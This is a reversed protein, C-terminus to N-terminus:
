DKAFISPHNESDSTTTFARDESSFNAWIQSIQKWPVGARKGPWNALKTEAEGAGWFRFLRFRHLNLGKECNERVFRNFNISANSSSLCISFPLSRYRGIFVFPLFISFGLKGGSGEEVMWLAINWISSRSLKIGMHAISLFLSLSLFSSSLLVFAGWIMRRRSGLRIPLIPIPAGSKWQLCFARTSWIRISDTMWDSKATLCNHELSIFPPTKVQPNAVRPSKFSRHTIWWLDSM